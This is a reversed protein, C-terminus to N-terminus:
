VVCIELETFRRLIKVVFCVYTLLYIRLVSIIYVMMYTCLLFLMPYYTDGVLTISIVTTRKTYISRWHLLKDLSVLSVLSLIINPLQLNCRQQWVLGLVMVYWFYLPICMWIQSQIMCNVMYLYMFLKLVHFALM